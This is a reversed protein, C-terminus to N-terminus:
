ARLGTAGLAGFFSSFNVEVCFALWQFMSGYDGRFTLEGNIPKGDVESYKAFQAFFYELDDETLRECFEGIAAGLRNGALGALDVQDTPQAGQLAAAQVPGLIKILRVLVKRGPGAPMQHVTFSHNGIAKTETELM